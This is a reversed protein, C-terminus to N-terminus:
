DRASEKGLLEPIRPLVQRYLDEKPSHGTSDGRLVFDREVVQLGPILDYSAPGVLSRKPVLVRRNPPGPFHAEWRAADAAGPAGMEMSYLLLQVYVLRDDSLEIPPRTYAPLLEEMPPLDPQPTVGAFGGRSRGGCFAQCAPCNMGIPEVLIVKGRLDSLRLERGAADVVLLDPYPEGLKPPWPVTPEEGEQARSCCTLVRVFLISASRM